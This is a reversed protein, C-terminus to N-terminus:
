RPLRIKLQEEMRALRSNFQQMSSNIEGLVKINAERRALTEERYKLTLEKMVFIERETVTVRNETTSANAQIGSILRTLIVTTAIAGIVLSIPVWTKESISDM